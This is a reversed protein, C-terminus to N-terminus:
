NLKLKTIRKKIEDDTLEKFEKDSIVAISMGDGSASDRKMAATLGRIVMDIADNTSMDAKYYDELVGYVFMSGSGTSVFKDEISGGAPDISYVHGGNKDVGGLLVWAYYPYYRNSVLINSLLTSASDITVQKNQKLKYLAVEAKLYRVLLQADGVLGAVTMGMNEDVKFLKQTTKHAIFNGMTARHETAMIVSDKTVVGVTTTGKKQEEM